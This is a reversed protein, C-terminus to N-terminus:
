FNRSLELFISVSFAQLLHLNLRDYVSRYTIKLIEFSRLKLSVGTHGKM